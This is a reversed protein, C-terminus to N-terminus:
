HTSDPPIHFRSIQRKRGQLAQPIANQKTLNVNPVTQAEFAKHMKHKTQNGRKTSTWTWKLALTGQSGETLRLVGGHLSELLLVAAKSEAQAVVELKCDHENVYIKGAGHFFGCCYQAHSKQAYDKRLIQQHITISPIHQNHVGQHSYSGSHGFSM